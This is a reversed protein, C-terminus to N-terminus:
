MNYYWMGVYVSLLALGVLFHSNFESSAASGASKGGLTQGKGSFASGQTYKNLAAEIAAADAGKVTEIVKTGKLFVFTPM